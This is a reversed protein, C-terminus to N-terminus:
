IFQTKNKKGIFMWSAFFENGWDKQRNQVIVVHKLQLNQM